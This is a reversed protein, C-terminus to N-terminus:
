LDTHYALSGLLEDDVARDHEIRASQTDGNRLANQVRGNAGIKEPLEGFLFGTVRDQDRFETAGFHENCDRIVSSLQVVDPVPRGGAAVTPIPEIEADADVLAIEMAAEVEVRIAKKV